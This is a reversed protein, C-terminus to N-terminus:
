RAFLVSVEGAPVEIDFIGNVRPELVHVYAFSTHRRALESVFHSFQPVPDEMRMDLDM